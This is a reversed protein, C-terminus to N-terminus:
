RLWAPSRASWAPRRLKARQAMVFRWVPQSPSFRSPDFM